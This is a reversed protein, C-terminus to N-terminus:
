RLDESEITADVAAPDQALRLLAAALVENSTSRYRERMTRFGVAGAVTLLGDVARAGWLEAPRPEDRGEGVIFSPRAITYPLGSTRVAQEAKWRARGYPSGARESAGAASLYLFRPRHGAAVCADALLKTLGYDVSEYSEAPRGAAAAAQGRKRTTGILCFVMEPRLRQISAALAQADWPTADVSAGMAGFRDRWTGLSPSDPRVHAVASIGAAALLRVVERGTFGTAGAVFAKTM